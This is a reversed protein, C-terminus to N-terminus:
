EVMHIIIIGKPLQIKFTVEDQRSKTCVLHRNDEEDVIIFLAMDSDYLQDGSGKFSLRGSVLDAESIQNIMLIIIDNKIACESLMKSMTAIKQYEADSGSKNLKMRSDVAFKLVRMRLYHLKWLWIM